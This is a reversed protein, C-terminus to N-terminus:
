LIKQVVPSLDSEADASNYAKVAFYWAGPSLNSVVYQTTDANSITVQQTLADPANGYYIRYGSLDTLPTGDTNATPATWSLSADSSSTSGGSGGSSGSSGGGSSGGGTWASQASVTIDFQPLAATASGDSATILIGPYLGADVARPVGTLKGTAADFSAWAPINQIRFTVTSGQSETVSPTFAYQKGAIVFSGPRGGIVISSSSAPDGVVPSAAATTENDHHCGTLLALLMVPLGWTRRVLQSDQM